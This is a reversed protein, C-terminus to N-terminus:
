IQDLADKARRAVTPRAAHRSIDGDASRIYDPEDVERFALPDTEDDETRFGGDVRARTIRQSVGAEVHEAGIAPRALDFGALREGLRQHLL